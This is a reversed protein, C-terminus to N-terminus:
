LQDTKSSKETAEGPNDYPNEKLCRCETNIIDPIPESCARTISKKWKDDTHQSSQHYSDNVSEISVIRLLQADDHSLYLLLLM